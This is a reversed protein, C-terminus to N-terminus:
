KNRHKLLNPFNNALLVTCLMGKKFVDQFYYDLKNILQRLKKRM